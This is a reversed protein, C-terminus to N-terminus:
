RRSAGLLRDVDLCLRSGIEWALGTEGDELAEVLRTLRAALDELEDRIPCSARM